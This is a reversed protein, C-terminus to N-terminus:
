ELGMNRCKIISNLIRRRYFREDGAPTIRKNAIVYTQTDSISRDMRDSRALLWIQAARINGIDVATSLAIGAAYDFADVNGDDNTDLDTDLLGDGDSDIAWIVSNPAADMDLQGDNNNDFAYAFGFAHINDALPQFGGGTNRGLAAAGNDAIGDLDADDTNSFGFTIDENADSPGAYGNSNLDVTFNISSPSATIITANADGTPDYGALRIEREMYYMAARINQQMTAIQEQNAYSKQQTNYASYVAAMVIGTIAITILLEVLSYGYCGFRKQLTNYSM